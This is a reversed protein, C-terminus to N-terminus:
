HGRRNRDPTVGRTVVFHRGLEFAWGCLCVELRDDPVQLWARFGREGLRRAPRVSNHVLVQREPIAGPLKTLYAMGRAAAPDRETTM